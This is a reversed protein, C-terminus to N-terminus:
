KSKYLRYSNITFVANKQEFRETRIGVLEFGAKEIVRNSGINKNDAETIYRLHLRPTFLEKM